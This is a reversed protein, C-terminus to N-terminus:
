DKEQADRKRPVLIVEMTRGRRMPSEGIRAVEKLMEILKNIKELGVEPHTVERGRYFVTLKVRDGKKLFEKARKARINLDAEGINPKIRIEKLETKASGKKAAKEKKKQALLFKQFNLLKAVPPKASPAVEVLNLGKRKAIALAEITKIIGLQKGHVDVLRIEKAKINQNIRFARSQRM